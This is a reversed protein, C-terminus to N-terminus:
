IPREGKKNFKNGPIKLIIIFPIIKKFMKKRIKQQTYFYLSNESM